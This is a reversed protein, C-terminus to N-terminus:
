ALAVTKLNKTGLEELKQFAAAFEKFFLEKDKAYMQVYQRMKKDQILAIDSPLMMLKGSPDEFQMPGDWEKLTWPLSLLLAYYGNTLVTPTPTWPGSYGSADPHCRGLAHPIRRRGLAHAGSLAVIERDDFGMRYFIDMRLHSLTKAPSGKDADPVTVTPGGAAEIATAGALTYLDAYSISCHAESPPALLTLHLPSSYRPYTARDGGHALEEKFRITGGGSGGTKSMKDYTGSSHWALRVMTPGIDPDATIM